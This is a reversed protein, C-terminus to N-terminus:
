LRQKTNEWWMQNIFNTIVIDSEIIQQIRADTCAFVAVICEKQIARMILKKKYPDM